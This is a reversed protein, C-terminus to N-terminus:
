VCRALLVVRAIRGGAVSPRVAPDTGVDPGSKELSCPAHVGNRNLQPANELLFHLFCTKKNINYYVNSSARSKCPFVCQCVCGLKCIRLVAAAM